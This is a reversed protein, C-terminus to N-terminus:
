LLISSVIRLFCKALSSGLLFSGLFDIYICRISRYYMSTRLAYIMAALRGGCTTQTLYIASLYCEGYSRIMWAKNSILDSDRLQIPVHAVYMSIHNSVVYAILVRM